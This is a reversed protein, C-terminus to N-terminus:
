QCQMARRIIEESSLNEKHTAIWWQNGAIDEVVGSRDGWFQDEPKEIPKAGARIAKQYVADVDEVYMYIKARSLRDEPDDSDDEGIVVMSSGIRVEASMITGDPFAAIYTHKGDFAEKLFEIFRSAGRVSFYPTITGFGEPIAKVKM